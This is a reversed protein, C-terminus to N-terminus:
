EAALKSNLNDAKFPHCFTGQHDLAFTPKGPFHDSVQTMEVSLVVNPPKNLQRFEVAQFFFCFNLSERSNILSPSDLLTNVHLNPFMEFKSKVSREQIKFRCITYKLSPLYQAKNIFMCLYIEKFYYIMSESKM